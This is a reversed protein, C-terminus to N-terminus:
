RIVGRGIFSNASGQTLTNTSLPEGHEPNLAQFSRYNSSELNGSMRTKFTFGDFLEASLYIDGFIRFLKNFDDKGRLLEAVPNRADGIGQAGTGAFRGEDDYVPILPNSRYAEDISNGSVTNSFSASLHQGILINDFLRFESNLRTIAQKFGTALLIGDRDLYNASMFYKGTKNGNQISVSGSQVVATRTIEEFWKTGGPKVPASAPGRQIPDYSRVVTYNVLSSPVVPNPGTGYQPHTLDVGDNSLSQWIMEAHQQANLMKPLNTASAYGSYTDVSIIPKDMNYGGSKTTIIIVGNSARAGYIAAAADKLVNMQDIDNPNISNLVDPNDTQVGDIIYLPNTNNSTGFGRVTVKPAGGPNGNNTITVGPVRGQLAEAVNVLPAKVAESIDVSSVAGTIDGRTQTTYGTVVVESLQGADEVMTVDISTRQDVLIEQTKFGLYSFVLISNNNVSITYNGEFDSQVGNTTGKEVINAGPLPADNADTVIGSVFQQVVKEDTISSQDGTNTPSSKRIDRRKLIVQRKRLIYYISTGEFLIDLVESVPRDVVKVSVMRETDIKKNNYFFKLDTLSEIRELVKRTEVRELDLTVENKQSYVSAQVSFISVVLLLATLKMSLNLNPPCPKFFGKKDSKEM